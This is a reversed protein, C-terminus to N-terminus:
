DEDSTEEVWLIGTTGEPPLESTPITSPKNLVVWYAWGDIGPIYTGRYVHERFEELEYVTYKVM